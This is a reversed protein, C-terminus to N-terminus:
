NKRNEQKDHIDQHDQQELDGKACTFEVNPPLKDSLFHNYAREGDGESDNSEKEESQDRSEDTQEDLTDYTTGVGYSIRIDADALM